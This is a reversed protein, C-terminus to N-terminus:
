LRLKKSRLKVSNLFGFIESNLRTIPRVKIMHAMHYRMIYFCIAWIPSKSIKQCSIDPWVFRSIEMVWPGHAMYNMEYPGYSMPHSTQFNKVRLGVRPLRFWTQNCYRYSSIVARGFDVNCFIIIHIIQYGRPFNLVNRLM